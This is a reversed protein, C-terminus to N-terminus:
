LTTNNISAKVVGNVVLTVRYKGAVLGELTYRGNVDTKVTTLLRGTKSAEIRIDAGQIPHRQADKVIGQLPVPSAASAIGVFLMVALFVIWIAKM